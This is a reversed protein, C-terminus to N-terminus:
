KSHSPLFSRLGGSWFLEWDNVFALDGEFTIGSQKIKAMLKEMGKFLRYYAVFLLALSSYSVL